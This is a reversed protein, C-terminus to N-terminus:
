AFIEIVGRKHLLAATYCHLRASAIEALTPAIATIVRVARAVVNPVRIVRDGQMQFAESM